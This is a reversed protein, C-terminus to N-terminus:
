ECMLDVMDVRSHRQRNRDCMCQVKLDTKWKGVDGWDSTAERCRLFTPLMKLCQDKWRNIYQLRIRDLEARELRELLDAEDNDAAHIGDREPLQNDHSHNGDEHYPRDVDVWEPEYEHNNTNLLARSARGAEQRNKAQQNLYSLQAPTIAKTQRRLRNLYNNYPNSPM